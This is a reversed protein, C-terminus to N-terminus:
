RSPSGTHLTVTVSKDADASLHLLLAPIHFPLPIAGLGHGLTSSFHLRAHSVLPALFNWGMVPNYVSFNGSHNRRDRSLPGASVVLAETQRYGGQCESEYGVRQGPRAQYNLTTLLREGRQAARQNTSHTMKLKNQRQLLLSRHLLQSLTCKIMKKLM